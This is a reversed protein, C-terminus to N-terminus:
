RRTEVFAFYKTHFMRSHLNESLGYSIIELNVLSFESASGLIHSKKKEQSSKFFEDPPRILMSRIIKLNADDLLKEVEKKTWEFLHGAKHKGSEIQNELGALKEFLKPFLSKEIPINMAMYKTLNSTNTLFEAPNQLHELIDSLIVLDLSHDKIPSKMVDAQICSMQPDLQRAKLLAEKSIELGIKHTAGLENAVIDLVVGIGCGMEAVVKYKKKSIVLLLMKAKWIADRDVVDAKKDRWYDEYFKLDGM